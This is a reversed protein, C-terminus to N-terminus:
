SQGEQKVKIGRLRQLDGGPGFAGSPDSHDALVGLGPGEDGNHRSASTSAQNPASELPTKEQVPPVRGAGELGSVVRAASEVSVAATNQSQAGDTAKRANTKKRVSKKTTTKKVTAKKAVRKKRATTKKTSAKQKTPSAQKKTITTGAAASRSAGTTRPKPAPAM